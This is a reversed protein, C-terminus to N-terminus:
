PVRATLMALLLADGLLGGAVYTREGDHTTPIGALNASRVFSASREDDGNMRAAGIAFGTAGVSIGLFMPGANVDGHGDQGPPYERVAGLGGISPGQLARYLRASLDRHAFGLFYSGVATGSGRPADLPDCANGVRQVLYGSADVACAFRRAWTAFFPGRDTHTATDHLGISAVVATVDPPWIEHPYTEVMGIPSSELRAVFDRTMRDNDAAYPATPDVVRLMGLALNVYGLYAHGEGPLVGAHGYVSRAYAMAEPRMMLDAAHRMAPLYVDRQDPHALIIQGLGLITMQYVAIASQCDFRAFGTHYVIPDRRALVRRAVSRALAEDDGAGESVVFRTTVCPGVSFCAVALLV